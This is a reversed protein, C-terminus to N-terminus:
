APTRRRRVFPIGALGLGFLALTAPEPVASRDFSSVYAASCNDNPESITCGSSASTRSGSEWYAWGSSSLIGELPKGVWFFITMEVPNPQVGALHLDPFITTAPGTLLVYAPNIISASWETGLDSAGPPEFELGPPSTIFYEVSTASTNWVGADLVFSAYVRTSIVALGLTALLIFIRKSAM